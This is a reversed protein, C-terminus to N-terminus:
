RKFLCSGISLTTGNNTVTNTTMKFNQSKTTSADSHELSQRDCAHVLVSKTREQYLVTRGVPPLPRPRPRPRPAFTKLSSALVRRDATQEDFNKLQRERRERGERRERRERREIVTHKVILALPGPVLAFLPSSPPPLLPSPRPQESLAPVDDDAWESSKAWREHESQM